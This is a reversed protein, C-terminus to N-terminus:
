HEINTALKQLKIQREEWEVVVKENEVRKVNVM